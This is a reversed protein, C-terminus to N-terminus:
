VSLQFSWKIRTPGVLREEGEEEESPNAYSFTAEVALASDHLVLHVPAVGVVEVAHAVAM